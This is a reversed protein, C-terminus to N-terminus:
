SLRFFSHHQRKSSCVDKNGCLCVAAVVSRFLHYSSVYNCADPLHMVARGNDAGSVSLPPASSPRRRKTNAVGALNVNSNSGVGSTQRGRPVSDGTYDDGTAAANSSEFADEDAGAVLRDLVRVALAQQM